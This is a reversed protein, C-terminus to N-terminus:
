GANPDRFMRLVTLAIIKLDLTFSWNEIYYLDHAIRPGLETAGRWGNVQAWGTIGAKVMHRQHYRPIEKRFRGIFVPREPRPGVVSMDGRLVNYFQPLEDLSTRRLFRGFRTPRADGKSAWKPGTRQESGPPMSRFKYIEFRKGDLGMREQAYIVSGGVWLRVGVAIAALLPALGILVAASFVVDFGRKVTAQMGVLPRDVLNIVPLGEFDDVSSNLVLGFDFLDAVLRVDVYSDALEELLQKIRAYREFPLCVFVQQAGTRRIADQLEDSTGVVAVDRYAEAPDDGDSLMGVVHLGAWPYALTRDIVQHATEGSGILLVHRLNRGARRTLRVASRLAVRSLVLVVANLPLFVLLFLRSYTAEDLRYAFSLALLVLSATAVARLLSGIEKGLRKLRWPEYLGHGRLSLHWLVLVVATGWYYMQESPMGRVVPLVGSYFRLQYTGLWTAAILVLDAGILLLRIAEGYRRLM